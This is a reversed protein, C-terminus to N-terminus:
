YILGLSYEKLCTLLKITLWKNVVIIETIFQYDSPRIIM